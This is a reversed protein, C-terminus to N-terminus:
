GKYNGWGHGCKTCRWKPDDGYIVCGGLVILGDEEAKMLEGCDPAPMGYFIQAGARQGCVPCQKLSPYEKGKAKKRPAM